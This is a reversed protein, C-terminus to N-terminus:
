YVIGHCSEACAQCFTENHMWGRPNRTGCEECLRFYRADHLLTQVQAAISAADATAPLRAACEWTAEPTHPGAWTIAQVFIRVGDGSAESRFFQQSLEQDTM